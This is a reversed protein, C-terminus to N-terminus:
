PGPEKHPAQKQSEKSHVQGASGSKESESEEESTSACGLYM